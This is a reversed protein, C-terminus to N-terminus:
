AVNVVANLDALACLYPVEAVNLFASNDAFVTRESLVDVYGVVYFDAAIDLHLVVDRKVLANLKLVVNEATGGADKCIVECWSCSVGFTM